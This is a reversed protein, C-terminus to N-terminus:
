TQILSAPMRSDSSGNVLSPPVLTSFFLSTAQCHKPQLWITCAKGNWPTFSDTLAAYPNQNIKSPMIWTFLRSSHASELGQIYDHKWTWLTKITSTTSVIGLPLALSAVWPLSWSPPIYHGTLPFPRSLYSDRCASQFSLCPWRHELHCNKSGCSIDLELKYHCISSCVHDVYYTYWIMDRCSTQM